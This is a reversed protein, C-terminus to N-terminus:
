LETKFIPFYTKKGKMIDVSSAPLLTLSFVQLTKERGVAFEISAGPAFLVCHSERLAIPQREVVIAGSGRYIIWLTYMDINLTRNTTNLDYSKSALGHWQMHLDDFPWDEPNLNM